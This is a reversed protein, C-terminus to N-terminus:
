SAVPGLWPPLHPIQGPTAPCWPPSLHSGPISQADLGTLVNLLHGGRVGPGGSGEAGAGGLEELKGETASVAPQGTLM